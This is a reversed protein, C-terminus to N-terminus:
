LQPDAKKIHQIEQEMSVIREVLKTVEGIVENKVEKLEEIMDNQPADNLPKANKEQM